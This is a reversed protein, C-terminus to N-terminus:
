DKMNFKVVVKQARKCNYQKCFEKESVGSPIEAPNRGEPLYGQGVVKMMGILRKKEEESLSSEKFVHNFIANARGFSLKLNYNIAEKDEPRVSRPNVYKGKYTSSAFGIIEVNAVKDAVKPDSFLSRAYIPIFKDLTMKMKPKLIDSGSDFYEEGFDLTVVGSGGDVSAKVGAKEFNKAIQAALNKKANAIQRTRMLDGELDSKEKQLGAVAAQARAQAAAAGALQGKMGELKGQTEALAGQTASVQNRLGSAEALARGKAAEAAAKAAEAQALEGKLGALKGQADTLQGETQSVKDQLGSLQGELEQAKRKAQAAFEAIKKARAEASMKVKALNANFAAKEANMREEHASRLSQMEGLYKQKTDELKGVLQGVEKQKRAVEANAQTLDEQTDSLEERTRALKTETQKLDKKVDDLQAVVQENREELAEVREASEKKLQAVRKAYAAQSMKTRVREQNLKKLNVALQDNVREIEEENREVQREMVAVQQKKEEITANKDVIVRDRHKIQAKALVNTDIINRIVQQYQNLAFEKEQNERAKKMLANKEDKAEEQLLSLKDMLKKYVEQEEESSDKLQEDKLTTYVKIQQELDSARKSLQKFEQQQQFGASGSRLSSAVFMLLFVISLMLFLDAYSTWFSNHEDKQHYKDYDFSVFHEETLVECPNLGSSRIVARRFKHWAGAGYM